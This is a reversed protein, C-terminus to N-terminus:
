VYTKRRVILSIAVQSVGYEKALVMQTVGSAHKKRIEEAQSNSLKANANREGKPQSRRGKRYADLQNASYNGIFFHDPNCCGRNDCTHLVHGHDSHRKPAGLSTVLGSLFAAVRHATYVKGEWAVTGYGTSNRSGKWPWCDDPRGTEVRKWFTEPTQKKSM